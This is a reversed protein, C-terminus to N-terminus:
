TRGIDEVILIANRTFSNVVTVSGSATSEVRLKRTQSGSLGTETWVFTCVRLENLVMVESKVAIAANAANTIYVGVTNGATIKQLNVCATYKYTRNSEATWTVSCGTVDATTTIGAQDSGGAKGVWSHVADLEQIAAQVTTAAITGAPVFSIASADHADVTDALHAALGDSVTDLDAEVALALAELDGPVDTPDTDEPFPFGFIPTTDSM